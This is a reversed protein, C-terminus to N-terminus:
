EHISVDPDIRKKLLQQLVRDSPQGNEDLPLYAHPRRRARSTGQALARGLAQLQATREVRGALYDYGAAEKEHLSRLARHGLYRVAPYREAELLRVLLLGMWNTGSASQAAPWSFAGAVVVRSRADSQCLHLLASSYKSDDESLTVPARGYWEQLREQTWSLSKDLHCLNCAHPKGTGLSDKIRLGEIRHSRHTTLLSYVQYPMHCNYCLSGPSGAPHHTHEVLRQRYADHCQYCADNTEMGRALLFNPKSDHMSHCSLCSLRGTGKQYCASLAMGQYELATTLPTGDGWFRGDGTPPATKAREALETAVTPVAGPLAVPRRREQAYLKMQEAESWFFRNFDMLDGGADFPDALTAHDWTESRPVLAGHCHACIDDARKVPLRRPNVITPDGNGQVALRRAPNQNQRVHEAGPGHCAECAIGLEAVETGYGLVLNEDWPQRLPQKSPKTNHCFVCSENWVGSKNWFDDTDPALFAGNTHIWRNEVLHYSVPLRWYRGSDDKMLCEQFWHSGVLREVKYKRVPPPAAAQQKMGLAARRAVQNSWGQDLTEMFFENGERTLRTAIGQFVYTADHFDGKVNEPTAERTMTRHFTRQWSAYHDQHCKFCADSAVSANRGEPPTHSVPRALTFWVGGLLLVLVLSVVLGRVKGLTTALQYLLLAVPLVLILSWLSSPM